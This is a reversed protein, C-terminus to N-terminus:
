LVGSLSGVGQKIKDADFSDSSDSQGLILYRIIIKNNYSKFKEM